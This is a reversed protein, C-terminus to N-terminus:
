VSTFWGAWRAVPNPRSPLTKAEAFPCVHVRVNVFGAPVGITRTIKMKSERFGAAKVDCRIWRRPAPSERAPLHKRYYVQPEVFDLTMADDREREEHEM